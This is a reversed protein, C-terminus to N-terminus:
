KVELLEEMTWQLEGRKTTEKRVEAVTEPDVPGAEHGWERRIYTLVSSIQTDDLSGLGPM